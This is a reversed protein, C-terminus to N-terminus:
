VKKAKFDSKESVLIDQMNILQLERHNSKRTEDFIAYVQHTIQELATKLDVQKIVKDLLLAAVLDGSGNPPIKFDLKPTKILWAESPRLLVMGIENSKCEKGQYSTVLITEIGKSFLRESEHKIDILNNLEKQCIYNLEFHNPTIINGSFIFRDRFFEALSANVFLNRGVDGFVPDLCYKFKPNKMRIEAAIEEAFIGLSEHGLYGTLMADISSIDIRKKVGEWLAQIHHIDFIDGGWEGYGTHNSFQVTNISIVDNKLRQLAFTAVRNGVYGYAVHSQISLIRAMIVKGSSRLFKFLLKVTSFFLFFAPM